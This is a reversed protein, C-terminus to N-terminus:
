VCRHKKVNRGTANAINQAKDLTEFPGHWQGNKKGLPNKHCGKGHKCYGCTGVHIVAKNEAVWNEYVYYSM